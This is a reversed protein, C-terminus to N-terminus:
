ENKEEKNLEEIDSKLIIEALDYCKQKDHKNSIKWLKVIDEAEQSQFFVCFLGFAIKNKIEDRADNFIKILREEVKDVPEDTNIKFKMKTNAM